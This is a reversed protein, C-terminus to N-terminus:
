QNVNADRGGEVGGGQPKYMGGGGRPRERIWIFPANNPLPLISDPKIYYAILFFILRRKIYVM